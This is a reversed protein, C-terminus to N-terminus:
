GARESLEKKLRLQGCAADIDHGKERRLTTRVRLRGLARHFDKQVKEDPREWELGDVKNYPILNVKAHLRNALAGLPEVQDMGDNVGKILIYELTIVKGKQKRFFDCADTLEELPYKRNVPMIRGRVENTAGHLSIALGFQQPVEALERIRPVLGSTSITIRRAGINGGWPANLLTLAKYLNEFNAMPEGMGMVVINNVARREGSNDIQDANRAYWREVSLVQEVIEHVHLNRKWGDLGSACFKCGYACGVQTSICLTRRTSQDGDESPNAPIWVSEIYSGDALKWLFKRTTDKSGTVTTPEFSSITLREALAERLSKPLSTMSEWDTVSKDYVWDLVQDVRYSQPALEALAEVIEDRSLDKIDPKL